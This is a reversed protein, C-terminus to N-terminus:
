VLAFSESVMFRIVRIRPVAAFPSRGVTQSELAALISASLDSVLRVDNFRAAIDSQSFRIEDLRLKIIAGPSPIVSVSDAPVDLKRRKRNLNSHDTAETETCSVPGKTEARKAKLNQLYRKKKEKARQKILLQKDSKPPSEMM